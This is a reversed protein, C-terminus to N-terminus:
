QGLYSSYGYKDIDVIGKTANPNSHAGDVFPLCAYEELGSPDIYFTIRNGVYRYLNEDGAYFSLPDQSLFKATAPDYWRADYYMLGASSDNEQSTYQYRLERSLDGETPVTGSTTTIVSGFTYYSNHIVADVDQLIYERISNQHDGLAWWVEQTTGQYEQALLHDEAQPNWLYRNWIAPSETVGLGDADYLDLIVDNARVVVREWPSLPSEGEYVYFQSTKGGVAEGNSGEHRAIRRNM